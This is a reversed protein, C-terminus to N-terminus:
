SLLDYPLLGCSLLDSPCFAVLIFPWHNISYYICTKIEGFDHYCYFLADAMIQGPRGRGATAQEKMSIKVKAADIRLNNAVHSHEVKSFVTDSALNSTVAGKCKLAVRQSCKWRIRTKGEFNRTYSYGDFCLKHGGKNNSILEM